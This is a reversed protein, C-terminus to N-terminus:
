KKIDPNLIIDLNNTVYELASSSASDSQQKTMEVGTDFKPTLKTEIYKKTEETNNIAQEVLKPDSILAEVVEQQSQKPFSLIFGNLKRAEEPKLNEGKWFKYAMLPGVTLIDVGLSKAWERSTLPLKGLINKRNNQLFKLTEQNVMQESIKKLNKPDQKLVMNMALKESEPLSKIFELLEKETQINAKALKDALIQATQDSIKGLGVGYKIMPLMAFLVSMTSSINEGKQAERVAMPINLGLEGVIEFFMAWSAPAGLGETAITGLVAILLSGVLQFPLGYDDLFKQWSTRIDEVKPSVYWEGNANKYGAPKLDGFEPHIKPVYFYREGTPTIFSKLTGPKLLSILQEYTPVKKIQSWDMYKFDDKSGTFLRYKSEKPIWIYTNGPSSMAIHGPVRMYIHEVDVEGPQLQQKITEPAQSLQQKNLRDINIDSSGQELLSINEYLTKSSDYNMKLLIDRLIEQHNNM